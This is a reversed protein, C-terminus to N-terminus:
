FEQVCVDNMSSETHLWCRCLWIVNYVILKGIEAVKHHVYVADKPLHVTSPDVYMYLSVEVDIYLHM